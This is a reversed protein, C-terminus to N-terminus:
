RLGEPTSHRGTRLADGHEALWDAFTRPRIGFRAWEVRSDVTQPRQDLLAGLLMQRSALESFPRVLGSMTRLLGGSLRSTRTVRIHLAEALLANVQLV